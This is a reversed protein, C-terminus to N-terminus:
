DEYVFLRSLIKWIKDKRKIKIETNAREESIVKHLMKNILRLKEDFMFNKKTYFNSPSVHTKGSQNLKSLLISGDEYANIETEISYRIENLYLIQKNRPYKDLIKKLDKELSELIINKQEQTKPYEKTYIRDKYFRWIKNKFFRGFSCKLRSMIYKPNVLYDVAHRIEHGLVPLMQIDMDYFKNLPILLKIGKVKNKKIRVETGAGINGFIPTDNIFIKTCNEFHKEIINRITQWNCCGSDDFNNLLDEFIRMNLNRAADKRQADTGHCYKKPLKPIQFNVKM